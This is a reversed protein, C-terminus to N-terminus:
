DESQDDEEEEAKKFGAELLEKYGPKLPRVKYGLEKLIKGATVARKGVVCFTYVIKDDPLKKKLQEEDIGKRLASLPLLVSDKLHGKDWESKERVDVLVAKKAAVNKRVAALSDKTHEATQASSMALCLSLFGVAPITSRQM